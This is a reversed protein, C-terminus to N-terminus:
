GTRLRAYILRDILLGDKFISRELRAELHFGSKLLVRGSAPNWEFVSAELRAADFAAFAYRAIARAAETALGRGWFPEGLWYGLKLTRRGVDTHRELGIAGVPEAELVIAFCTSPEGTEEVHRIWADADAATYPHPFQDRLNRWVSRNNAYRVLAAEDGRRWPRLLVRECRIEM